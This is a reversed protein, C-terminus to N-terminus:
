HQNVPPPDITAALPAIENLGVNHTAALVRAVAHVPPNEVLAEYRNLFGSLQILDRFDVEKFNERLLMVNFLASSLSIGTDSPEEIRTPKKSQAMLDFFAQKATEYTQYNNEGGAKPHHRCKDTCEKLASFKGTIAYLDAIEGSM